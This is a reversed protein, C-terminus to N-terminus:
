SRGADIEYRHRPQKHHVQRYISVPELTAYGLKTYGYSKHFHHSLATTTILNGSGHEKRNPVKWSVVPRGRVWQALKTVDEAAPTAVGWVSLDHQHSEGYGLTAVM